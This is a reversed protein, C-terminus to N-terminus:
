GLYKSVQALPASLTEALVAGGFAVTSLSFAVISVFQTARALRRSREAREAIRRAAPIRPVARREFAPEANRVAPAATGPEAVIADVALPAQTQLGFRDGGSWAVRAVIVHRGRRLELYTGRPPASSGEVLLGRSSINRIVIDGWTAGMRMRASLYVTRRPERAKM